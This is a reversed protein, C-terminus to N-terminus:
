FRRAYHFGDRIHHRIHSRVRASAQEPCISLTLNTDESCAHTRNADNPRNYAASCYPIGSPCIISNCTPYQASNCTSPQLSVGYQALPYGAPSFPDGDINSLDYYISPAQWTYEFQTIPGQITANGLSLKISVGVDPLSYPVQVGTEPVRSYNQESRSIVKYYMDIGCNNYVFATGTSLTSSIFFSLSIVRLWICFINVLQMTYLLSASLVSGSAKSLTLSKM